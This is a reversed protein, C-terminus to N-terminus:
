EGIRYSKINDETEKIENVTNGNSDIIIITYVRMLKSSKVVALREGVRVVENKSYPNYNFWFLIIFIICLFLIILQTILDDKNNM